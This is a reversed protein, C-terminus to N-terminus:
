MLPTFFTIIDGSQPNLHSRFNTNSWFVSGDKRRRLFEFRYDVKGAHYDALVKERDLASSIKEGYQWDVASQAM